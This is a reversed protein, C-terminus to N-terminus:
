FLAYDIPSGDPKVQVGAVFRLEWVGANALWVYLSDTDDDVYGTAGEIAGSPAGNGYAIGYKNVQM